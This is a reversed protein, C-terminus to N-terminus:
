AKKQISRANMATMALIFANGADPSEYWFRFQGDQYRFATSPDEVLEAAYSHVQGVGLHRLAFLLDRICRIRGWEYFSAGPVLELCLMKISCELPFLGCLLPSIGDLDIRHGDCSFALSTRPAQLLEGLDPADVKLKGSFALRLQADFLGSASVLREQQERKRIGEQDLGHDSALLVESIDQFLSQSMWQAPQEYLYSVQFLPFRDSSLDIFVDLSDAIVPVWHSQFFAAERKDKLQELLGLWDSQHQELDQPKIFSGLHLLELVGPDAQLYALISKLKTFAEGWETLFRQM